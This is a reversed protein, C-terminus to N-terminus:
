CPVRFKAANACTNKTGSDTRTVMRQAAAKTANGVERSAGGHVYPAWADAAALSSTFSSRSTTSKAAAKIANAAERSAGGRVYQASANSVSTSSAGAGSTNRHAIAKIANGVE